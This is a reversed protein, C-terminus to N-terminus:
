AAARPLLHLLIVLPRLRYLLTISHHLMYLSFVGYSTPQSRTGVPLRSGPIFLIWLIQLLNGPKDPNYLPRTEIHEPVLHCGVRPMEHWRHLVQLASREEWLRHRSSDDSSSTSPINHLNEDMDFITKGIRVRGPDYCPPELKGDKCLKALIQTPKM